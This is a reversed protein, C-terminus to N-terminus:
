GARVDLKPLLQDLPAPAVIGFGQVQTVGLAALAARQQRTEVGEAVIVTNVSSSAFAVLSEVLRQLAPDHDVDEVLSRDLKIVEPRLRLIHRFTSFGAGADDVALRAGQRRFRGAADAIGEYDEIAEHETLEIVIRTADVTSILRASEPDRLLDPSLNVSLYVGDPSSDLHRLAATLAALEAERALGCSKAQAFLDSPTLGRPRALAEVGLTRGSHLDVIPQFYVELDPEAIAAQVSDRLLETEIRTLDLQHTPRPWLVAGAAVVAAILAPRLAAPGDALWPAALLAAMTGLVSGAAILARRDPESGRRVSWQRGVDM